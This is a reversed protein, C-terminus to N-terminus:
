SQGETIKEKPLGVTTNATPHKTTSCEENDEKYDPDNLPVITGRQMTIERGGRFKPWFVGIGTPSGVIDPCEAVPKTVEGISRVPVLGTGRGQGVHVWDPQKIKMVLQGKKFNM